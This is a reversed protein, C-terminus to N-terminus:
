SLWTNTTPALAVPESGAPMSYKPLEMITLGTASTIALAAEWWPQHLAV